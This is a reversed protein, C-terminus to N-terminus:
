IGFFGYTAHFSAPDITAGPSAKFAVRVNVPPSVAKDPNPQVVEIVPADPPSAARFRPIRAASAEKQLEEPSLLTWNGQALASDALWVGTIAAIVSRRFM